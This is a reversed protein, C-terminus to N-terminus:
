RGREGAETGSERRTQAVRVEVAMIRAERVEICDARGKRELWIAMGITCTGGLRTQRREHKGLGLSTITQGPQMTMGTKGAEVRV